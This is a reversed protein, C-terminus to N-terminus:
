SASKAELLKVVQEISQYDTKKGAKDTLTLAGSGKVELTWDASKGDLDLEAIFGAQRLAAATDFMKKPDSGKVLVRAASPQLVTEDKVLTLLKDLYIACGSAPIDGGGMSPILADYRGGGGIKEAGTFLQFIIGTYYEFGSGSAIDVKYKINLEDLISVIQCFDGLASGIEPFVRCISERKERLFGPSQVELSFLPMLIEGLEPVLKTVKALVKTDGDLISDFVKHQEEPTIKLKTLLAKLIGAHSLRLEVNKLGLKNVIEMSLAILEADAKASGVGILEAGCQWRERTKDGTEFTFMNAVYFLRALGQGPMSETYLRAVPITGDPRLVVREGSWGDWDLFSYVKGLMTPTLTGASTFLHLYEITPTRVERYGWKTFCDRCIGKLGHFVAMTDPSMDRMGKCRQIKM